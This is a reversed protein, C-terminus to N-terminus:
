LVMFPTRASGGACRAWDDPCRVAICRDGTCIGYCCVEVRGFRKADTHSERGAPCATRVTRAVSLTPRHRWHRAKWQGFEDSIFSVEGFTTM